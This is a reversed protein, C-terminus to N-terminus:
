VCRPKLDSRDAASEGFKKCYKQLESLIEKKLYEKLVNESIGYTSSESDSIGYDFLNTINELKM